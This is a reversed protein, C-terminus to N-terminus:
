SDRGDIEKARVDLTWARAIAAVNAHTETPASEAYPATPRWKLDGRDATM